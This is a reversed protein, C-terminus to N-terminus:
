PKMQVVPGITFASVNYNGHNRFGKWFRKALLSLGFITHISLLFLEHIIQSEYHQWFSNVHCSILHLEPFFFARAIVIYGTAKGLAERTMCKVLSLISNLNKKKKFLFYLGHNCIASHKPLNSKLKSGFERLIHFPLCYFHARAAKVDRIFVQFDTVFSLM